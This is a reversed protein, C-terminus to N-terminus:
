SLETSTLHTQPRRVDASQKKSALLSFRHVSQLEGVLEGVPEVSGPGTREPHSRRARVAAPQESALMAYEPDVDDSELMQGRQEAAAVSYKQCRVM